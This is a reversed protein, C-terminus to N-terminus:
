NHKELWFSVDAFVEERNLENLIEHRCLPYIKLAVQEIGCFTFADKVKHVGAGFDGVPDDGGAILLVPTKPNMRAMNERSQIYSVGKMMDRMLGASAVFGCLPDANYADVVRKDRSLWDTATRPHEIKRNYSGFAVKHLFTSPRTEDQSACVANCALLGAKLVPAQIWGTGCIIYGAANCEPHDIMITRLMFSGMSHGFFFYPVDPFESYTSEYLQYIDQTAAFWGGCFWGKTGTAASDGHGMHDQAVVLYGLANLYRAFGDYRMAYEAIGHIIQIVGRPACEPEWRCAHIQGEGCSPYFSHKLM